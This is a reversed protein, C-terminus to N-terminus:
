RDCFKKVSADSHVKCVHRGVKFGDKIAEFVYGVILAPWGVAIIVLLNILYKM